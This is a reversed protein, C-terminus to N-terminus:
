HADTSSASLSHPASGEPLGRAAAIANIDGNELVRKAAGRTAVSLMALGVRETTTVYKPAITKLLPLLPALVAYLVRYMKTRSVIGHMPMIVAPRMMYTARFPMKALANETEGKVRAWMAPGREASDTGAGSVYLFTMSPNAALLARAVALTLDYTVRRYSEENMGAASAGLCYLCADCEALEGALSSLDRLDALVHERVKSGKAGVGSPARGVVLVREVEDDLLCERLVGQGVMGSGGFLVVKM